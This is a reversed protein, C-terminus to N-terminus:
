PANAPPFQQLVATELVGNMMRSYTATLHFRNRYVLVHGIVPTCILGCLWPLVSIYGSGTARAAAQDAANWVGRTAAARTTFCAVVNSAHAALCEPPSQALVPTDGLVIVRAGSRRLAALTRTLGSQWQPATVTQDPGTKQAYSEDTVLVLGPQEAVIQGEAYARFRDCETFSRGAQQNWFTIAPAPCGPKDFFRLQWHRRQAIESLAPLWMGAHSDGYLVVRTSSAPDGLVCADIRDASPGAECRNSDFGLDRGVTTLSPTLDAPTSRIAPAARVAALVQTLPIRPAPVPTSPRPAPAGAGCGAVLVV